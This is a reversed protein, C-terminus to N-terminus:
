RIKTTRAACGAAQRCPLAASGRRGYNERRVMRPTQAVMTELGLRQLFNRSHPFPAIAHGPLAGTEVPLARVGHAGRRASSQGGSRKGSRWQLLVHGAREHTRIHRHRRFWTLRPNLDM